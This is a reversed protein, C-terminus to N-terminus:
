SNPKQLEIVHDVVKLIKDYSGRPEIIYKGDVIMIPTSSVKLQRGHKIARNVKQKVTFSNIYQQSIEPPVGFGKLFDQISKPNSLFNGEKHITVFVASHASSDLGLAEITYYLSAHLQHVPGWTVPIKSFKVHSGQKSSWANVAPDFQYCGGCGYWFTETVEVVGDKKVPLPNDVLRYDVGIRYNNDESYTLSAFFIIFLYTILYKSLKKM